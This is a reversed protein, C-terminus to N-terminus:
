RTRFRHNIKSGGITGEVIRHLADVMTTRQEDDVHRSLMDNIEHDIDNIQALVERGLPSLRLHVVRRDIQGAEREILNRKVLTDVIRSPSRTECVIYRGLAALTLPQREALVAIIEAQAPTLGLPRLAQGLQRNGERQAALILYRMEAMPHDDPSGRLQTEQRITAYNAM